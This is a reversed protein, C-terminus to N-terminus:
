ASVKQSCSSNAYIHILESNIGLASSYTGQSERHLEGMARPLHYLRSSYSHSTFTIPVIAIGQAASQSSYCVFDQRFATNLPTIKILPVAWTNPNVLEPTLMKVHHEPARVNRSSTRIRPRCNLM